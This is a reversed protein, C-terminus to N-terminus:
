MLKGSYIVDFLLFLLLLSTKHGLMKCYQQSFTHLGKIKSTLLNSGVCVFKTQIVHKYPGCKRWQFTFRPEQSPDRSIDWFSLCVLHKSKLKQIIFNVLVGIKGFQWTGFPKKKIVTFKLRWIKFLLCKQSIDCSEFAM